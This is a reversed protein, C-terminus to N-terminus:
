HNDAHSYEVYVFQQMKSGAFRAVASAAASGAGCVVTLWSCVSAAAAAAAGNTGASSVWLPLLIGSLLAVAAAGLAVAVVKAVQAMREFRKMAQQCITCHQTHQQFRDNIEQKTLQRAGKPNCIVDAAKMTSSSSLPQQLAGTLWRRAAVVSGDCPTPMYFADQWASGGGRQSLIHDQMAVFVNDQDFLKSSFLHGQYAPAQQFMRRALLIPLSKPATFLVKVLDFVTVQQVQSSTVSGTYVTSRGPGAPVALLETHITHGSQLKYNYIVLSPPSYAVVGEPSMVSPFQYASLPARDSLCYQPRAEQEEPSSGTPISDVVSRFPMAKGGKRQLMPTLNHHSFPLHSPDNLNELLSELSMAMCRRYWNGPRGLAGSHFAECSRTSNCATAKAKDDVAQPIDQCRGSSDFRWGHYSCQLTGDAELRGESLPALRHPCADAFCNWRGSGDKWLVLQKGLLEIAHPRSPDIQDLVHVPYWNAAWSFKSSDRSHLAEQVDSVATSSTSTAADLSSVASLKSICTARAAEYVYLTQSM